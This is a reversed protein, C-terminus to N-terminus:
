RHEVPFTDETYPLEIDAYYYKAERGQGCITDCMMMICNLADSVTMDKVNSLKMDLVKNDFKNNMVSALTKISSGLQSMRETNTVKM